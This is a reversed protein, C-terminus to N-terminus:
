LGCKGAGPACRIFRASYAFATRSKVPMSTSAACNRGDSSELRPKSLWAPAKANEGASSSAYRDAAPLILRMASPSMSLGTCVVYRPEVETDTM